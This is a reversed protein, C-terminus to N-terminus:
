IEQRQCDLPLCSNYTPYAIRIWSTMCPDSKNRELMGLFTKRAQVTSVPWVFGTNRDNFSFHLSSSCNRKGLPHDLLQVCLKAYNSALSASFYCCETVCFFPVISVQAVVGHKSILQKNIRKILKYNCFRLLLM